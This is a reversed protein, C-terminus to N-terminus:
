DLDDLEDDLDLDEGISEFGFDNAYELRNEKNWIDLEVYGKANHKVYGKVYCDVIDSFDIDGLDEDDSKNLARHVLTNWRKVNAESVEDNYTFFITQKFSEGKSNIFKYSVSGNEDYNDECATIKLVYVGENMKKVNTLSGARMKAM